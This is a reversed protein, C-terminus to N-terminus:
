IMEVLPEVQKLSDTITVSLYEEAMVILMTVLIQVERWPSLPVLGFVLVTTCKKM